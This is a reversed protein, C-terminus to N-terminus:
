CKLQAPGSRGFLTTVLTDYYLRRREDCVYQLFLEPNCHTAEFLLGMLADVEDLKLVYRTPDDEPAPHGESAAAFIDVIITVGADILREPYRIEEFKHLEEVIRDFETLASSPKRKKFEEWLRPLNHRYGKKSDAYERIRGASDDHALCAKLFLEVAHHLLNASIPSHGSAASFRGAVYYQIGYRIAHDWYGSCFSQELQEPTLTIGTPNRVDSDSSPM